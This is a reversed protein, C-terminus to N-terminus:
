NLEVIAYTEDPLDATGALLDDFGIVLEASKGDAAITMNSEKIRHGIVRLTILHGSFMENMMAKMEPDEEGASFEDDLTATPFTVRVVGPSVTTITPQPEGSSDNPIITAFDGSLTTTCTASTETVELVGDDECFDDGGGQAQSLEYFEKDMSMVTRAEALNDGKIELEMTMDICGTLALSLAGVLAAKVWPVPLLTNHM